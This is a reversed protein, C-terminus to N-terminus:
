LMVDNHGPAIEECQFSLDIPTLQKEILAILFNSQIYTVKRDIRSNLVRSNGSFRM